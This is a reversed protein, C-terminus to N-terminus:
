EKRVESELYRESQKKAPAFKKTSLTLIKQSEGSLGKELAIVIIIIVRSSKLKRHAFYKIENLAKESKECRSSRYSYTYLYFINM